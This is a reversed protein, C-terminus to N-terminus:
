PLSRDATLPCAAVFAVLADILPLLGSATRSATAADALQAADLLLRARAVLTTAGATGALAILVHAQRTIAILDAPPALAAGLRHRLGVLDAGFQRRLERAVALDLRALLGPLVTTDIGERDHHKHPDDM